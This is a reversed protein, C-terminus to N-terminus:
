GPCTVRLSTSTAGQGGNGGVNTRYSQTGTGSACTWYATATITNTGSATKSAKTSWYGVRYQQLLTQVSSSGDCYATGSGYIHDYNYKVPTEAVNTCPVVVPGASASPALPGASLAVLLAAAISVRAIKSM